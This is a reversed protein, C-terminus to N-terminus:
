ALLEWYQTPPRDVISAAADEVVFQGYVVSDPFRFHGDFQGSRTKRLVAAVTYPRSVRGYAEDQPDRFRVRLLVSDQAAVRASPDYTVGVEEGQRAYPVSFRLAG